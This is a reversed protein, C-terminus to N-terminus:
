GRHEGVDLRFDPRCFRVYHVLSDIGSRVAEDSGIELMGTGFREMFRADLWISFDRINEFKSGGLDSIITTTSTHTAKITENRINAARLPGM